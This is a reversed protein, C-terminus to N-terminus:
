TILLVPIFFEVFASIGFLVQCVAGGLDINEKYLM